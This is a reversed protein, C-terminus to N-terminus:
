AFWAPFPGNSEPQQKAHTAALAALAEQILHKNGPRM